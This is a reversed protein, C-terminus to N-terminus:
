VRNRLVVDLLKKLLTLPEVVERPPLRNWHRVVRESFWCKRFDLKFLGQCLKLGNGRTRNSAIHSFFSVGVKGCDGEPLQVSHYPRGQAEEEGSQAIWTGKAAESSTWLV